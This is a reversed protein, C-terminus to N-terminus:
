RFMAQTVTCYLRLIVADVEFFDGEVIKLIDTNPLRLISNARNHGSTGHGVVKEVNRNEALKVFDLEWVDFDHGGTLVTAFLQNNISLLQEFVGDECVLIDASLTWAIQNFLIRQPLLEADILIFDSKPEVGGWSSNIFLISGNEMQWWGMGSAFMNYSEFEYFFGREGTALCLYELTVTGTDLDMEAHAFLISNSTAHFRPVGFYTGEDLLEAEWSELCIRFVSHSHFHQRAHRGPYQLSVFIYQENLGLIAAFGNGPIEVREAQSIDHLPLRSLASRTPLFVYADTVAWATTFNEQADRAFIPGPTPRPTPTFTPVPTPAPTPVPIYVPSPIPTPSPAPEASPYPSFIPEHTSSIASDATETAEGCGIFLFLVCIVPLLLLRTMKM